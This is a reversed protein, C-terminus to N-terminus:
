QISKISVYLRYIIIVMIVLVLFGIIAVVQWAEVWTKLVKPRKKRLETQESRM